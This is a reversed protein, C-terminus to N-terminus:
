SPLKRSAESHSREEELPLWIELGGTGTRPDFSEGYCEFFPADALERGSEPLWRTWITKWTRRITAIHDRHAFWTCCQAPMRVRGREPPLAAFDGVEVGTM